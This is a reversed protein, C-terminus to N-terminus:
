NDAPKNKLSESLFLKGLSQSAFDGVQACYNDIQGALLLSHLREMPQLPKFLRNIDEEPLPAEGHQTRQANESARKQIYQSKQLKQKAAQRQFNLYRNADMAVDDVSEMLQRLNKELMSSTALDLFNFKQSAVLSQDVECLLSNCLHSNRIIVPIEELMNKFSIGADRLSDPTFDEKRYFDMMDKTLRYAKLSLYGKTTRLPDYILVVSEEISNQYNYQSDLFLRNIFSGFYTSQYWGVHLHDINVHRLNRMMEMQYQVEDFDEDENHRPFPFCNTIELRNEVVLGLLVGQVLDTGGAGEEQCHKIVKLVVLGDIQVYQVASSLTPRATAM